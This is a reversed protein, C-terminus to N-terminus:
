PRGLLRDKGIKEREKECRNKLAKKSQIKMSNGELKAEDQSGFDFFNSSFDIGLHRGLNLDIKSQYKITKEHNKVELKSM